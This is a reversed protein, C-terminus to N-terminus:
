FAFFRRVGVRRGKKRIYGNHFQRKYKGGKGKFVYAYNATFFVFSDDYKPNGRVGGGTPRTEFDPDKERRRDSLAFALQGQEDNAFTNPNRYSGSVDDLYDTNTTHVTLKVGVKHNRGLSFDMGFGTITSIGSLAYKVGETYLPALEIRKGLYETTPNHMFFGFGFIAYLNYDIRYRTNGGVNYAEYVDYEGTISAEFIDNRFSLNRSNRGPNTTLSDDGRIRGFNVSLNGSLRPTIAYRTFLGGSLSTMKIQMDSVFGRRPLFKGGIDGLYNSAGISGGVEFRYNQAQVQISSGAAFLTVLVIFLLLRIKM